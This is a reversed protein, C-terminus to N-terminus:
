CARDAIERTEAAILALPEGFFRIRGSALLPPDTMPRKDGYGKHLSPVASPVVLDQATLIERVGKLARAKGTSLRLIKASATKSRVVRMHLMHPMTYDGAFSTGGFVKGAADTRPLPKGIQSYEIKAALHDSHASSTM